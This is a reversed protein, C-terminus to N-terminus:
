LEKVQAQTLRQTEKGNSKFTYRAEGANFKDPLDRIAKAAGRRKITNAV